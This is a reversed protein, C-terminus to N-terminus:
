KIIRLHSRSKMTDSESTVEDVFTDELAEEKNEVLSDEPEVEGFTLGVGNEQAYIALVSDIPLAIDFSVGNFRAQFSIGEPNIIFGQIVSSLINLTISNDKVYDQPVLVGSCNTDIVIHPTLLNDSIWNYYAAFEVRLHM